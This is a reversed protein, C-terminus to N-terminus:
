LMEFAAGADVVRPDDPDGGAGVFGWYCFAPRLRKGGADVLRGLAELPAVLDPDVERWRAIEGSLLDELRRDVRAALFSLSPPAPPPPPARPCPPPPRPPPPPPRPTAAGPPRAAAGAPPRPPGPAPPPRAAPRPRGAAPPGRRGGAPPPPVLPQPPEDARLPAAV